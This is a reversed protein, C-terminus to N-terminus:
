QIPFLTKRDVLHNPNRENKKKLLKKKVCEETDELVAKEKGEGGKGDEGTGGEERAKGEGDDELDEERYDKVEVEGDEGGDEVEVEEMDGTFRGAFPNQGLQVCGAENEIYDSITLFLQKFTPRDEPAM